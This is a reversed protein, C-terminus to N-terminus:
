EESREFIVHKGFYSDLVKLLHEYDGSTAEKHIIDWDLGLQKSWHRANGLLAFANGDPGDLDIVIQSSNRRPKKARIM